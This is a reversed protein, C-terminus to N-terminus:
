PQDLERVPIKKERAYKLFAARREEVGKEYLKWQEPTLIQKLAEQHAKRAAQLQQRRQATDKTNALLAQREQHLGKLVIQVKTTQEPSLSLKENLFHAERAALSDLPLSKATPTQGYSRTACLMVSITFVLYLSLYKM